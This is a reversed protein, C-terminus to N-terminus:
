QFEVETKRDSKLTSENLACVYETDSVNELLRHRDGLWDHIIFYSMIMFSQVNMLFLQIESLLTVIIFVTFCKQM